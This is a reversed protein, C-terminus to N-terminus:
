HKDSSLISYGVRCYLCKRKECYERRLQILAQSDVANNINIGASVFERVISNREPRINELIAIAKLCYEENGIYKGYAFLVPVITNIVIVDLSAAGLVKKNKVSIKCFSHHSEWYDSTSTQFYAIYEKYDNIGLITSFLRGSKQLLAALQAIRLEPFSSPRIRMKKLLYGDFNKLKYKSKLFKYENQLRVYYEDIGDNRKDLVDEAPKELLGAQGFMLAEIQFLSDSHKLIYKFPLSLALREFEDSNIGFGFNRSLTVYFVEDWSNNFRELHRNIDESKRELRELALNTLWANIKVSPITTLFNKCPLNCKSNVLYEASGKLKNSVEIQCQPVIQGKENVIEMDIVEAIHLIVTNYSKDKHHGHRVWDSSANHIEVNGAWVKDEFKIKSNFFDPGANVNQIGPDIVEVDMGEKTILSETNYLKNRWIYHLLQESNLM